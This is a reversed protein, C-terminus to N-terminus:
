FGLSIVTQFQASKEGVSIDQGKLLMWHFCHPWACLFSCVVVCTLSYDHEVTLVVLLLSLLLKSFLSVGKPLSPGQAPNWCGQLSSPVSACENVVLFRGTHPTAKSTVLTLTTLSSLREHPSVMICALASPSPARLLTTDQSSPLSGASLPM